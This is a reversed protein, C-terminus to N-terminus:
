HWAEWWLFDNWRAGETYSESSKESLYANVFAVCDTETMIWFSVSKIDEVIAQSPLVLLRKALTESLPPAHDSCFHDFLKTCFRVECLSAHLFRLNVLLVSVRSFGRWEVSISPSSRHKVYAYHEPLKWRFTAFAVLPLRQIRFLSRWRGWRQDSDLLKIWRTSFVLLENRDCM